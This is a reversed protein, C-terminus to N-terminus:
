ENEKAFFTAAKKLIDRDIKLQRNEKRLRELESDNDTKQGVPLFASRGQDSIKQAWKRLLADSVGLDKSARSFGIQAALDAAELKFEPSFTRRPQKGAPPTRKKKTM